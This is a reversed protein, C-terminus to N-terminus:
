VSTEMAKRHQIVAFVFFFFLSLIDLKPFRQIHYPASTSHAGDYVQFCRLREAGRCWHLPLVSFFFNSVLIKAWYIKTKLPYQTNTQVCHTDRGFSFEIKFYLIFANCKFEVFDLFFFTFPAVILIERKEKRGSGLQHPSLNESQLFQIACLM